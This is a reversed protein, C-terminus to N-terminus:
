GTDTRSIKGPALHRGDIGVLHWFKSTLVPHQEISSRELAVGTFVFWDIRYGAMNRGRNGSRSSFEGILVALKEGGFLQAFVEGSVTNSVICRHCSVTSRAHGCGF